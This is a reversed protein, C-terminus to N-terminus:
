YWLNNPYGYGQTAFPSAFPSAGDTYRVGGTISFNSTVKYTARFDAGMRGPSYFGRNLDGAPMNSFDKWINGSLILRDSALYDVGVSAVYQSGGSNRYMVTTGEATGFKTTYPTTQVYSLGANVRFRNSVQYRVTPEVFTASGFANSFSAGMNLGYSLKPGSWAPKEDAAANAEPATTGVTASTAETPIPAADISPKVDQALAQGAYMLSVTLITRFINKM